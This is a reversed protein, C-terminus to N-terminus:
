AQILILPTQMTQVMQVPDTHYWVMGLVVRGISGRMQEGDRRLILNVPSPEEFPEIAAWPIEHRTWPHM